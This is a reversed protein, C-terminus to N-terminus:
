VGQKQRLCALLIGYGTNKDSVNSSYIMSRSKDSVNSSNIMVKNKHSVNSSYTMGKTNTQAMRPTYWLGDTRRLVDRLIDYGKTQSLYELLIVYGKNKDSINSSYTMGRTQTQSIRPSYWLWQKQKLSELFIDDVKYKEYFKLSYIM